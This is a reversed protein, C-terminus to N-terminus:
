ISKFFKCGNTKKHQFIQLHVMEFIFDVYFKMFALKRKYIMSNPISHMSAQWQYNLTHIPRDNSMKYLIDENKLPM